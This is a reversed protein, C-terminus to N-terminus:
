NLNIINSTTTAAKVLSKCFTEKLRQKLNLKAGGTVSIILEPKKLHWYPRSTLYQVMTDMNTKYSVRIYKSISESAGLFLIDGKIIKKFIYKYIKFIRIIYFSVMLMQQDMMVHAHIETGHKTPQIIKKVLM